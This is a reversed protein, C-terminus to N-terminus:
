PTTDKEPEPHSPSLRQLALEEDPGIDEITDRVLAVLLAVDARHQAVRAKQHVLYRKWWSCGDCGCDHAHWHGPPRPPKM